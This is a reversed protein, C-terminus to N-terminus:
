NRKVAKTKVGKKQMTDPMDDSDDSEEAKQQEKMAQMTEAAAAAKAHKGKPKKGGTAVGDENIVGENSAEDGSMM